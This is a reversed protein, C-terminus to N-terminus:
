LDGGSELQHGPLQHVLEDLLHVAAPQVRRRGSTRQKVKGGEFDYNAIVFRQKFKLTQGLEGQDGPQCTPRSGVQGVRRVPIGTHALQYSCM